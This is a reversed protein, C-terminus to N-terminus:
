IMFLVINVLNDGQEEAKNTKNQKTKKSKEKKSIGNPNWLAICILLIDVSVKM